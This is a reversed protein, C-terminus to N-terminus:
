VDFVSVTAELNKAIQIGENVIPNKDVDMPILAAVFWVGKGTTVILSVAGDPNIAVFSQKEKLVTLFEVDKIQFSAINNNWANLIVRVDDNGLMGKPSHIVRGEYTFVCTDIIEQFNEMAIDIARKIRM